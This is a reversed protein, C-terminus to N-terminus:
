SFRGDSGFREELWQRVEGVLYLSGTVCVIGPSSLAREMASASEPILETSVGPAYNQALPKLNEVTAARLNRPQTLILRTALPFLIAAMKDIPKDVMAGFVLTLPLGKLDPASELYARLALAGAPNHAGDLLVTFREAPETSCEFMELRGPHRASQLGEIIADRHITFGQTKLCEALAIATAANQLQHAGRLGPRVHEYTEQQTRFTYGPSAAIESINETSWDPVVGNAHCFDIIVRRAEEPQPAIVVTSQPRIIAAKEAAIEALTEGLYEQHDLAIPTIAVTKARVATTSDLRGGLGTELIGLEVEAEKFALLAIATVQEFFTPPAEFGGSKVLNEAADRVSTAIRAFHDHEIELGGIKIRETISVLHPSTYLGARIGAARCISDLMVATSGKGNTGAIQVSVYFAQPNGLSELLLETSRLGLKMALTEHGLSLLYQTAEAFNM